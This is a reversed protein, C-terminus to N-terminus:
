SVIRDTIGLPGELIRIRARTEDCMKKV